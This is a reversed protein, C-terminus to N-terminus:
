TTPCLIRVGGKANNLYGVGYLIDGSLRVRHYESPKVQFRVGGVMGPLNGFAYILASKHALLNRFGGETGTTGNPTQTTVVVPVGYLMDHAGVPISAKGFQSADYFKQINMIDQYCKPHVVLVRDTAPADNSAYITFAKEMTTALLQTASNGVVPTINSGQGLVATDFTKALEYGIAEAYKDRIRMSKLALAAQYDSIVVEAGKWANITLNTNTDSVNTATTEGNTTKIDYATVRSINPIHL